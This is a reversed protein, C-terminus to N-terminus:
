ARRPGARRRLLDREGVPAVHDDLDRGADAAARSQTQAALTSPTAVARAAVRVEQDVDSIAIM